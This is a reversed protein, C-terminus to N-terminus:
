LRPATRISIPIKTASPTIQILRKMAVMVYTAGSRQQPKSRFDNEGSVISPSEDDDMDRLRQMQGKLNSPLETEERLLGRLREGIERVIARSHTHDIDIHHRM